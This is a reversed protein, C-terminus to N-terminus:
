QDRSQPPSVLGIQQLLHLNEIVGWREALRGNDIRYIGIWTWEVRRGTPAAGLLPGLHTGTERVRVIVRDEVALMEEITLRLDPFATRYMTAVHKVGSPGGGQGPTADRNVYDSAILDDAAALHGRNFIEDIARRLVAMNADARAAM